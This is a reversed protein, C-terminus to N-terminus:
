GFWSRKKKTPKDSATGTKRVAEEARRKREATVRMAVLVPILGHRIRPDQRPDDM